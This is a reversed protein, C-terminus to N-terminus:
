TLSQEYYSRCMYEQKKSHSFVVISSNHLLGEIVASVRFSVARMRTYTSIALLFKKAVPIRLKARFTDKTLM